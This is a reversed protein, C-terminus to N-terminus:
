PGFSQAAASLLSPLKAVFASRAMVEDVGASRAAEILEARVHSVYAITRPPQAAARCLRIAELVDISEADLDIIVLSDIRAALRDALKDLSRVIKVASGVASATSTIKTSFILDTVIAAIAGPM